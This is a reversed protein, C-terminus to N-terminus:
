CYTPLVESLAPACLAWFRGGNELVVRGRSFVSNPIRSLYDRMGHQRQEQREGM